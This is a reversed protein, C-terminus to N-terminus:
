AMEIFFKNYLSRIAKEFDAEDIGVIISLKSSGQNLMKIVIGAEHLAESCKHLTESDDLCKEGVIMVLAQNHVISVEEAGLEKKIRCILKDEIEKNLYKSRLIISIDDIGSPSHEFPICEEELMQLIKRVFGVERNMLYKRVTITSFGKDGSIGTIRHKRNQNVEMHIMTGPATPNNTNRVNVHTFKYYVPTLAEEHFVSFGAYSLERMEKFTMHDIPLPDSVINPNVTYIYDVDTFNEYVDCELAVALIAGTVDSGGRPLTVVDGNVSYGFFGPFIVKGEYNHLVKLNQYSAPLVQANGFEATLLLGAEKPSVYTAKEGQLNFYKAVLKACNDEGAAKLNDLYRGKISKDSNLRNKLDQTITDIIDDNMGLGTSIDRYRQIIKNLQETVDENALAKEALAILMDTVKEDSANRKGPASVVVFKRAPESTVINFVKKVQTADSLSSGGFKVVKLM